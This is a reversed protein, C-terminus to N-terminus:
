SLVPNNQIKNLFKHITKLSVNKVDKKEVLEGNATSYPDEYELVEDIVENKINPTNDFEPIQMTEYKAM